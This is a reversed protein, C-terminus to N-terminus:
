SLWSFFPTLFFRFLTLAPSVVFSPAPTDLDRNITIPPDYPPVLLVLGFGGGRGRVVFLFFFFFFFFFFFCLGGGLFLGFVRGWFFILFFLFFCGCV